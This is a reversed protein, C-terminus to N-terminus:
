NIKNRRDSKSNSHTGKAFNIADKDEKDLLSWEGEGHEKDYLGKKQSYSEFTVLTETLVYAVQADQLSKIFAKFIPESNLPGYQTWVELKM